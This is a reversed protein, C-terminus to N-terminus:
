LTQSVVKAAQSMAREGQTSDALVTNALTAFAAEMAAADIGKYWSEATLVQGAFPALMDDNVQTSLLARLATPKQAEELYSDVHEESTAFQLFSWAENPHETNKAVTEIWYHAFNVEKGTAIQPLSSIAFNLKPAAAKLLAIDYSYGLMMATQGSAFAEFSSSFTDNWTYTKKVPNAFDTYFRVADLGPFVGPETGDPITHFAIRGREDLMPAGNQLMLVQVIDAAREVNATTGLAAGSQTVEGTSSLTTLAAVNEQFAEWTEPPQAIGAANFLDKNYFLALTDLALPLGYVRDVAAEDPDPQYPLIVDHAVVDVFDQKITKQSPMAIEKTTLVTEKRVTGVTELFKISVSEPMPMLLDQYQILDTNTVTFIDPGEGAALARILEDAYEEYRLVKYDINVYPHQAEYADIIEDFADEGDFVRWYKLTVKEATSPKQSQGCGAGLTVLMMIALFVSFLRRFRNLRDFRNFHISM